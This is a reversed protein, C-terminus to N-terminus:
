CNSCKTCELMVTRSDGRKHFYASLTLVDFHAVEPLAPGSWVYWDTLREYNPSASVLRPM